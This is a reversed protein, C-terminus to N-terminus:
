SGCSARSWPWCASRWCRRAQWTPPASPFTPDTGAPSSGPCSGPMSVRRSCSSARLSSLRVSCSPSGLPRGAVGAEHLRVARDPPRPTGSKRSPGACCPGRCPRSSSGPSPSPWCSCHGAWANEVTNTFDGRSFDASDLSGVLLMLGGVVGVAGALSSFVVLVIMPMNGFVSVLGLIVGVAMGVLVAVWNWDIGLAVVLGSGIAFGFAGMALIVAVYYYLYAFVSFM